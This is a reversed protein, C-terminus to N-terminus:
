KMRRKYEAMNFNATPIDNYMGNNNTVNNTVGLIKRQVKNNLVPKNNPNPYMDGPDSIFGDMGLDFGNVHNGVNYRLISHQNSTMISVMFKKITDLRPDVAAQMNLSPVAGTNNRGYIYNDLAHYIVPVDTPEIIKIVFGNAYIDIMRDISIRVRTYALHDAKGEEGLKVENVLGVYEMEFETMTALTPVLCPFLTDPLVNFGHM